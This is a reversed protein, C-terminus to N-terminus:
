EDCSWDEIVYRVQDKSNSGNIWVTDGAPIDNPVRNFANKWSSGDGNKKKDFDIYIITM